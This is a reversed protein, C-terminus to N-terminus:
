DIHKQLYENLVNKIEELSEILVLKQKLTSIEPMGKLYNGYFKRFMKIGRQGKYKITLLLHEICLDIREQLKPQLLLEGTKLFYKAQKFLWANSVAGRGIMVGHCGTEFMRKVDMPTKVDGNGILPISIINKIKELWTWDAFGKYAQDRTRCHVALAKAGSAEAIRAAELIVINKEDWGLRTKVTVPLKTSNVATKIVSEYKKLDRLLGAGEGRLAVKKVWCGCNIDIFDPNFSEAIQVAKEISSPLAGFIQIAVPREQDSIQIKDVTKAANRILAESSAFETYVIDAGMKKCIIRFARDTVDEM